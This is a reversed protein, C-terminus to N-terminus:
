ININVYIFLKLPLSLVVQGWIDEVKEINSGTLEMIIM